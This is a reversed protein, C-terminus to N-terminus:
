IKTTDLLLLATDRSNPGTLPTAVEVSMQVLMTWRNLFREVLSMVKKETSSEEVTWHNFTHYTTICWLIISHYM